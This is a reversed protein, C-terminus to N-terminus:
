ELMFDDLAMRQTLCARLDDGMVYSPISACAECWGTVTCIKVGTHASPVLLCCRKCSTVRKVKKFKGFKYKGKTPAGRKCYMDSVAVETQHGKRPILEHDEHTTSRRTKDLAKSSIDDPETIESVESSDQTSEVFSDQMDVDEDVFALNEVDFLKDDNFLPFISPGFAIPEFTGISSSSSFTSLSTPMQPSSEAGNFTFKDLWDLHEIACAARQTQATSRIFALYDLSPRRSIDVWEESGDPFSILFPRSLKSSDYRTVEGFEWGETQRCVPMDRGVVCHGCLDKKAPVENAVQESDEYKPTDFVEIFQLGDAFTGCVGCEQHQKIKPQLQMSM